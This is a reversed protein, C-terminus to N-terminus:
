AMKPEVPCGAVTQTSIIRDLHSGYLEIDEATRMETACVLLANGLEPYEQSLDYGPLLNHAYLPRMVDKLPLRFRLAKEHFCPRDFLPEVYESATLREVLRRTNEHCARAVRALGEAGLLAM